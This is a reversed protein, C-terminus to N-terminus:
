TDLLEVAKRYLLAFMERGGMWMRWVDATRDNYHYPGSVRELLTVSLQPSGPVTCVGAKTWADWVVNGANATTSGDYLKAVETISAETQCANKIWAADGAAWSTVMPPNAKDGIQTYSFAPPTLMTLMAVSMALLLKKM